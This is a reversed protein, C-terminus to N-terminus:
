AGGQDGYEITSVFRVEVLTGLSVM